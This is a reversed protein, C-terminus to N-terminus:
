HPRIMKVCKEIFLTDFHYTGMLGYSSKIYSAHFILAM